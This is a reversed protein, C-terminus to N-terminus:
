TLNALADPAEAVGSVCARRYIDLNHRAVDEEADM